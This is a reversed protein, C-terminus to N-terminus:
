LTVRVAWLGETDIEPAYCRRVAGGRMGNSPGGGRWERNYVVPVFTPDRRLKRHSNDSDSQAKGINHRQASVRLGGRTTCGSARCSVGGHGPALRAAAADV